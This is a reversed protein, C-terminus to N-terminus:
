QKMLLVDDATSFTRQLESLVSFIVESQSTKVHPVEGGDWLSIVKQQLLICDSLDDHLCFALARKPYRDFVVGDSYESPITVLFSWHKSTYLSFARLLIDMLIRSAVFQWFIRSYKYVSFFVFRNKKAFCKVDRSLSWSSSMDDLLVLLVPCCGRFWLLLM